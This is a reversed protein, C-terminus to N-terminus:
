LHYSIGLMVEGFRPTVEANTNNNTKKGYDYYTYQARASVNHGLALESGLGVLWGFENYTNSTGTGTNKVEINGNALGLRGYLNVNHAPHYGPELAVGWNYNLSTKVNIAGDKDTDVDYFNLFLQAGLAFNDTAMTDWGAYLGGGWGRAALDADQNPQALTSNIASIDGFTYSPGAGFYFGHRLYHGCRGASMHDPGGALVATSGLAAVAAAASLLLTKKVSMSNEGKSITSLNANRTFALIREYMALLLSM